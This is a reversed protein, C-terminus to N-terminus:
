QHGSYVMARPESASWLKAGSFLETFLVSDAESADLDILEMADVSSVVLQPNSLPEPVVKSSFTDGLLAFRNDFQLDALTTM